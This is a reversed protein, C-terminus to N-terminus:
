RLRVLSQLSVSNRSFAGWLHMILTLTSIPEQRRSGTNIGFVGYTQKIKFCKFEGLLKSQGMPMKETNEQVPEQNCM